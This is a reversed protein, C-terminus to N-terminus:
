RRLPANPSAAPPRGGTYKAPSVYRPELTSPAHREPYSTAFAIKAAPQSVTLGEALGPFRPRPLLEPRQEPVRLGPRLPPRRLARWGARAHRPPTRLWSSTKTDFEGLKQLELYEDETLLEIGMAAALDMATNEPRAEKRAEWGARDYCFSRRGAPSEASCDFFVCEGTRADRSVVDPEGGTREMEHLSRLKAPNAELRARVEAWDIGPHRCANTEFRTELAHFLDAQQAPSLEAPHSRKKMPHAHAAPM